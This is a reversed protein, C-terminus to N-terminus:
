TSDKYYCDHTSEFLIAFIQNCTEYENTFFLFTLLLVTIENDSVDNNRKIM